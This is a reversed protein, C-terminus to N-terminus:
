ESPPAHGSGPIHGIVHDRTWREGSFTGLEDHRRSLEVHPGIRSVDRLPIRAPDDDRDAIRAHAHRLWAGLRRAGLRPWLAGPGAVLATVHAVGDDDVEVEIDDVNGAMRADADVLQRDLLQINAWWHATEM